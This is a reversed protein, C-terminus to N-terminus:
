IHGQICASAKQAHCRQQQRVQHKETHVLRPKAAAAHSSMHQQLRLRRQKGRYNIAGEIVRVGLAGARSPKFAGVSVHQSHPFRLCYRLM